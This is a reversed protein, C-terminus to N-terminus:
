LPIYIFFDTGNGEESKVEIYGKHKKIVNYCYSLGLGFHSNTEKTTFYPNFLQSLYKKPIGCGQDSIIIACMSKKETCDIRIIVKGNSKMSEAANSIINYFVETLHTSDCLLSVDTLIQNDIILRDGKVNNFYTIANKMIESISCKQLNLNIEGSYMQTKNIFDKIYHISRDIIMIEKNEIYQESTELNKICLEIKSLQNKLMHVTYNTGKSAIKMESDWLFHDSRLKLGMIGETCALVIYALLSIGLIFINEKWVKFLKSINLSHILFITILWYWIPPLIFMTIFHKQRKQLLSKESVASFIMLLTMAICYIFNYYTVIYWFHLSEHQYYSTKTPIFIIFLFISPIFILLKTISITHKRANKFWNSFYLSFILCCPLVWYYLVATMVSYTAENIKLPFRMDSIIFYSPIDYYLYEKLTGLSFILISFSCWQNTKSNKSSFLILLMAAWLFLTFTM